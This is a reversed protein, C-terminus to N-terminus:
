LGTMRRGSSSQMLAQPLQLAAAGSYELLIGSNPREGHSSITSSAVSANSLVARSGQYSVGFDSQSFTLSSVIEDSLPIFHCSLLLFQAWFNEESLHCNTKNYEEKHILKTKHM